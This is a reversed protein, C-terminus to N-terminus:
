PGSPIRYGAVVVTVNDGGGRDLALEVLARCAEGSSAQRRLEAGITADDAMATLGDTCLLLRDGDALRLRRIDPEDGAGQMGLAHTLVHRYRHSAFERAPIQASDAMEQALTHDRTLKHLEGQRFLYAPSDGIHAILLDTGLSMAMTLTSGMGRLRPDHRAQEVIAQNVDRFRGAARATVEAMLAEDPALIWDPTALALEILFTIAMRSAAEGAAMGGMGDAVILGYGTEGHDPPVHRDPLNTSLTQLFRGFRVILFHDENNPRVKGQHSQGALDAQISASSRRLRM